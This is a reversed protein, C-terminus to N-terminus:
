GFNRSLSPYGALLGGHPVNFQRSRFVPLSSQVTGRPSYGASVACPVGIVPVSLRSKLDDLAVATATNCAVVLAGIGRRVLFDSSERAYRVITEASRIGYPVRATDGLYITDAGPLARVIERLVTLGGIGSDFVGIPTNM